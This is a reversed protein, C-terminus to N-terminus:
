ILVYYLCYESWVNIFVNGTHKWWVEGQTVWKVCQQYSGVFVGRFAKLWSRFRLRGSKFGSGICCKRIEGELSLTISKRQFFAKKCICDSLSLLGVCICCLLGGACFMYKLWSGAHLLKMMQEGTLLDPSNQSKFEFHRKLYVQCVTYVTILAAKLTTSPPQLNKDTRVLFTIINGFQLLTGQIM